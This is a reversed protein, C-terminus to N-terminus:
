ITTDEADFDRAVDAPINDLTLGFSLNPGRNVYWKDTARYHTLTDGFEIHNPRRPFLLIINGIHKKSPSVLYLHNGLLVATTDSKDTSVNEYLRVVSNRLSYDYVEIVIYKPTSNDQSQSM